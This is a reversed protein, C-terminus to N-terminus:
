LTYVEGTEPDRYPLQPILIASGTFLRRPNDIHNLIAIPRWLRPNGYAQYAIQSLTEGQCVVHFRSYDSTERKTEKSDLEASKYENFTVQLRARVPTGDPLFLIYKQSMRALVCSFTLSGWTFIAPPPAHTSNDVEMLLAMKQVLKRVDDGAQNITRGGSSHAEYTDLLLELELTQLGGHVFQLVPSNLGPVGVQAYNVDKILTYEEPNFQVFFKDQTVANVILAKELSPM